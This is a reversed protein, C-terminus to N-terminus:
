LSTQRKDRGSKGALRGARSSASNALGAAATARATSHLQRHPAANGKILSPYRSYAMSLPSVAEM